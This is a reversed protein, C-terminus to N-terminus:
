LSIEHSGLNFLADVKTKKVQINIHFFKTNENEEYQQLISLNMEKQVSTLIINEDVDIISEVKNNSYIAM